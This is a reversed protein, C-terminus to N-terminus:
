PGAINSFQLVHDLARHNPRRASDQLYGGGIEWRRRSGGRLGGLLLFPGPLADVLHNLRDISVLDDRCQLLCFTADASGMASRSTKSDLPLRQNRVHFPEADVRSTDHM